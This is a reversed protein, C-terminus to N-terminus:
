RSAEEPEPIPDGHELAVELWLHLADRIMARAEEETDGQSLCGRLEEVKVVFGGDQEDPTLAITWPLALYYALDKPM